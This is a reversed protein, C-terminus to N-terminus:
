QPTGLLWDFYAEPDFPSPDPAVDITLASQTASRLSEADGITFGCLAAGAIEHNQATDQAIVPLGSTRAEALPFGFSELGPPFFIARSRGWLRGLDAHNLRGVLSIRPNQELAASLEGPEATVLLRVSRDICPQTASVWEEIRQDMCKYPAFLVPCLIVPDSQIRQVSDASVPHLRVVVRDSRDPLIRIVREAMASCPAILVDSRRAAMRVIPAQRAAPRLSPHLLMVEENTLFHLANGLLTWREGGPAVFSVNNLAVRRIGSRIAERQLLWSATLRKGAGVVRVDARGTTELYRYLEARFRAAGGMPGGAVDVTATVTL